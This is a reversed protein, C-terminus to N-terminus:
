PFVQMDVVQSRSNVNGVSTKKCMEGDSYIVWM